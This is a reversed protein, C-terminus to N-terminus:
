LRECNKDLTLEWSNKNFFCSVFCPHIWQVFPLNEPCKRGLVSIQLHWIQGIIGQRTNGTNPVLICSGRAHQIFQVM